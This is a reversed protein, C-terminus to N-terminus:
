PVVVIMQLYFSMFSTDPSLRVPEHRTPLNTSTYVIRSLKLTNPSHARQMLHKPCTLISQSLHVVVYITRTHQPIPPLVALACCGTNSEYMRM